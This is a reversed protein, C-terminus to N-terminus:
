AQLAIWAKAVRHANAMITLTPSTAPASPFTLGDAFYIGDTLMGDRSIIAGGLPLGGLYHSSTKQRKCLWPLNRAHPALFNNLDKLISATFERDDPARQLSLRSEGDSDMRVRYIQSASGDLFLRGIIVHRRLWRGAPDLAKWSWSPAFFRWLHDFASYLQVHAKPRDKKELPSGSIMASSLALHGDGEYHTRVFIPFTCVANDLIDLHDLERLSRLAIEASGLAGACIFIADFSETSRRGEKDAITIDRKERDLRLVRGDIFRQIKGTKLWGDIQEGTSFMAGRRCGIMCHGCSICCNANQPRTELALFSPGLMFKYLGPHRDPRIEGSVIRIAGGITPPPRPAYNLGADELSFTPAIGISHSIAEYHPALETPGFPWGAFDEEDFAVCSLGWFETLGGIHDTSWVSGWDQVPKRGPRIGFTTKPPPFVYGTQRRLHRYFTRLTAADWDEKRDPGTDLARRRSPNILAIEYTGVAGDILALLAGYAAAGAGVVAVKLM